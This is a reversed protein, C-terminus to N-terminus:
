ILVRFSQRFRLTSIRFRRQRLRLSPVTLSLTLAANDRSPIRKGLANGARTSLIYRGPRKWKRLWNKVSGDSATGPFGPRLLGLSTLTAGYHRTQAQWNQRLLRVLFYYQRNGSDPHIGASPCRFCRASLLIVNKLRLQPFGSPCYEPYSLDSSVRTNENRVKDTFDIKGDVDLTVNELLADRKIANYIDPESEKDLNIVKANAAAKSISCATTM